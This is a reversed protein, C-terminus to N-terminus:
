SMKVIRKHLNVLGCAVAVASDALDVTNVPMSAHIDVMRFVRIRGIVREIHIRLGAISRMKRVDARSLQQDKQVSPPRVLRCGVEALDSELEKFGRDALVTSGPRVCELYGSM